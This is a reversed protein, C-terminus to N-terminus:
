KYFFDLKKSHLTEVTQRIIVASSIHCKVYEKTKQIEKVNTTSVLYAIPNPRSQKCPLLCPWKSISQRRCYYGKIKHLSIEGPTTM